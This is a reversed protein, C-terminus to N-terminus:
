NASGQPAEGLGIESSYDVFYTTASFKVEKKQAKVFITVKLEKVSKSILDTMQRIMNLTTEDAQGEGIIISALDPFELERSEMEWRYAPQETGFDGAENEPIETLPKDKYLAEFEVMKKQLLTASNNFINAKRLRLSNTTWSNNLVLLGGGLIVLAIMVELLTFGGKKM